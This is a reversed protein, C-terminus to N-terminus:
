SDDVEGQYLKRWAIRVDVRNAWWTKNTGDKIVVEVIGPWLEALRRAGEEQMAPTRYTTCGGPGGPPTQNWAWDCIVLNPLGQSLLQLVMDFDQMVQVRDFRIGLQKLTETNIAYASSMRTAIRYHRNKIQNNGQRASIGVSPWGAEMFAEIQDFLEEVEQPPRASPVLFKANKQYEWDPVRRCFANIDDDLMLIHEELNELMWQRIASMRGQAPSAIVKVDVNRRYHDLEAYSTVITTHERWRMPIQALTRQSEARGISPIYIKM